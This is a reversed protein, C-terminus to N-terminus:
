YKCIVMVLMIDSTKKLKNRIVIELESNGEKSFRLNHHRWVKHQNGPLRVNGM